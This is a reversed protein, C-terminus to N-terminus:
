KKIASVKLKTVEKEEKGSKMLEELFIKPNDIGQQELFHLYSEEKPKKPKVVPKLTRDLILANGGCKFGIEDKEVLYKTIEANINKAQKRLVNLEKSLVAIRKNIDTLTQVKSVIMSM